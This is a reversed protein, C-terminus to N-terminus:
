RRRGGYYEMAEGKGFGYSFGATIFRGRLSRDYAYFTAQEAFSERIRSAFVDRVSASIIAKGKFLKKRFGLDASPQPSVRGQVTEFGSEYRGTIETDFGKKLKLRLTWKTSWQQATFDIDRGELNAVRNFQSANVDGNLVSWKNIDWKANYELGYSHKIGLNVPLTTTVGNSFTSIREIVDTTYLYFLGVNMSVKDRAHIAQLEYSDSFEPLLNPNGARINFDNRINFFPNLDWLRPRYIRRSYGAQMSTRPTLKYSIHASPFLNTFNMNNREGTNVLLTRLDTNEVRLGLKIGFTDGEYAGTIYTGLVNQNYDFVNTLNPDEIPEGNQVNAVEFDNSVGQLVYQAGTEVMFKEGIPKTYDANFTYKAEQFNTRTIQESEPYTGSESVNIFDSSQDKGFFNGLASFLLAHDEDDKFESKYQLEFQFKPNVAETVESRNWYSIVEGLSDTREFDYNSPQDELELAASGSLTLINRKNIYYDTGLVLNYFQENRYEVGESRVESGTLNNRNISERYRPLSRYGAGLQSFLNFKETRRNLSLGISHNHPWGTNLSVSGNVGKKEEKKLVINLIGATGEAEYKASPNTIVEIREIMDATITGLANGEQSALVSPKGNILIQVGSNGRLSVQGEINVNVSPVNNLVEMASAGTNSLDKGVNFVRKDLKFETSSREAQIVVGDLELSASNMTIDGLALNRNGDFSLDVRKSEYGMFSIELYAEMPRSRMGFAGDFDTTTGKILSDTQGQKLAISAYPIPEQSTADVISGSILVADQALSM